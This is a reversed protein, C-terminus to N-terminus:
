NPPERADPIRIDNKMCWTILSEQSLKGKKYQKYFILGRHKHKSKKIEKKLNKTWNKAWIKQRIALYHPPKPIAEINYNVVKLINALYLTKGKFPELYLEINGGYKGAFEDIDYNYLITDDLIDVERKNYSNLTGLEPDFPTYVIPGICDVNMITKYNSVMNITYTDDFNDLKIGHVRYRYIREPQKPKETMEIFLEMKSLEITNFCLVVSFDNNPYFTENIPNPLCLERKDMNVFYLSNCEYLAKLDEPYYSFHECDIRISIHYLDDLFSELSILDGKNDYLNMKIPGRPCLNRDYNEDELINDIVIDKPYVKHQYGEIKCVKISVM